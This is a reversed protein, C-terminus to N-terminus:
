YGFSTVSIFEGLPIDEFIIYESHYRSYYQAM